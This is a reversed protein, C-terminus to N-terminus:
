RVQESSTEPAARSRLPSEQAEGEGQDGLVNESSPVSGRNRLLSVAPEVVLCQFSSEVCLNEKEVREGSSSGAFADYLSELLSTSPIYRSCGDSTCVHCTDWM